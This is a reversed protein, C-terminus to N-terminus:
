EAFEGPDPAAELLEGADGRSLVVVGERRLQTRGQSAV